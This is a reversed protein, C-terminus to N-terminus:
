ACDAPRSRFEVPAVGYRRKFSRSFATASTFGCAASIMPLHYDTENLLKRGRELRLDRYFGSPTRNTHTRFLREMQRRSVAVQRAIDQLTLPEELHESMLGVARILHPNRSGLVYSLSSQPPQQAPRLGPHVCLDSVARAFGQGQDGEILHLVLDLVAAGGSCTLINGDACFLQDLPELDPHAEAFGPRDEWHMTFARPRLLGARALLPVGGSIAGVRAGFRAKQRLWNRATTDPDAMASPGSNILVVDAEPAADLAADPTLAVGNSCTVPAGDVTLTVWRYLPRTALHNAMRLPDTAAGLGLMSAGPLLLFAFVRVPTHAPLALAMTRASSGGPRMGPGPSHRPRTMHTTDAKM